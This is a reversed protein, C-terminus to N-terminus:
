IKEVRYKREYDDGLKQRIFKEDEMELHELYELCWEWVDVYIGHAALSVAVDNVYQFTPVEPLVQYKIDKFRKLLYLSACADNCIKEGNRFYGCDCSPCVDFGGLSASVIPNGCIICPDTADYEVVIPAKTDIDQM